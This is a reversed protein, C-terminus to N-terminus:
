PCRNECVLLNDILGGVSDDLGAARWSVRYEQKQKVTFKYSRQVWPKSWVCVDVMYNKVYNPNTAATLSQNDSLYGSFQPEVWLEIRRTQGDLAVTSDGAADKAVDGDRTLGDTDAPNSCIVADNPYQYAGVNKRATYVYQIEYTGVDLTLPMNISSNTTQGANLCATIQNINNVGVRNSCDSDLEAFAQGFQVGDGTTVASLQDVEVGANTTSWSKGQCAGSQCNAQNMTGFVGWGGNLQSTYGEFSESMMLKPPGLAPIPSVTCDRVVTFSFSNKNLLSKFVLDASGTAVVHINGPRVNLPPTTLVLNSATPTATITATSKVLRETANKDGYSQVTAAYGSPMSAGPLSEVYVEAQRCTLDAASTLRQKYDVARSIEISGGVGIVLAPLLFGFLIAVNGSQDLKFM